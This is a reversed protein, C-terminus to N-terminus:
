RLTSMRCFHGTRGFCHENTFQDDYSYFDTPDEVDPVIETVDFTKWPNEEVPGEMLQNFAQQSLLLRDEAAAERFGLPLQPGYKKQSFRLEKEDCYNLIALCIENYCHYLDATDQRQTSPVFFNEGLIVEEKHDKRNAKNRAAILHALAM